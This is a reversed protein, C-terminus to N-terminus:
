EHHLPEMLDASQSLVQILYLGLSDTEVKKLLHVVKIHFSGRRDGLLFSTIPNPNSVIHSISQNMLNQSIISLGNDVPTSVLRLIVLFSGIQMHRMVGDQVRVDMEVSFVLIKGIGVWQGGARYWDWSLLDVFTNVLLGALVPAGLLGL